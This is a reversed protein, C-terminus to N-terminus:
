GRRSAQPATFLRPVVRLFVLMGLLEVLSQLVIVLAVVEWGAPLALALPLVVFSNRTGLSFALARGSATPLRLARGLLVALALTGVLFVVFVGAVASLGLLATGLAGGQGLAILFVVLALLPVPWAGMAQVLAAGVPRREGARELAWAAALPLLIFAGFVM